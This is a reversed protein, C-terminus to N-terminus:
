APVVWTEMGTCDDYMDVTYVTVDKRIDCSVVSPIGISQGQVQIKSVQQVLYYPSDSSTQVDPNSAIYSSVDPPIQTDYYSSLKNLDKEGYGGGANACGQSNQVNMSLTWNTPDFDGKTVGLDRNANMVAQAVGGATYDVIERVLTNVGCSANSCFCGGLLSTDQTKVLTVYGSDGADWYYYECNNWTGGPDCSVIGASCVGSVRVGAMQTDYIYEYEGDLDLDEQIVLRWDNGSLPLYTITIGAKQSPCRITTYFSKDGSINTMPKEEVLPRGLNEILGEKSGIKGKVKKWIDGAGYDEKGV